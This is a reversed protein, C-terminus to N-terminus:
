TCALFPVGSEAPYVPHRILERAAPVLGTSARVFSGSSARRRSGPIRDAPAGCNVLHGAIVPAHTTRVTVGGAEVRIGQVRTGLWVSVGQRELRRALARAVEAFDVLGTEVVWLGAVAAVAPELARVGRGDLREPPVLGNAEARRALEELAPVEQESTAVVVKGSRRHPVGEAECFAYLAERGERCLRARLSGPRYYLGAHIVGSNRGSQHAAVRPEAELLVVRRGSECLALASALGVLGGGVVAVDFRDAAV